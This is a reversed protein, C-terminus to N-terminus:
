FCSGGSGLAAPSARGSRPRCRRELPPRAQSEWLLRSRGGLGANFLFLFGLRNGLSTSESGKTGGPADGHCLQTQEAIGGPSPRALGRGWFLFWRSPMASIVWIAGFLRKAVLLDLGVDTGLAAGHGPGPSLPAWPCRPPGLGAPGPPCVPSPDRSLAPRDGRPGAAGHELIAELTARVTFRVLAVCSVSAVINSSCPWPVFAVLCLFVVCM